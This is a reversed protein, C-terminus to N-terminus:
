RRKRKQKFLNRSRPLVKSVAGVVIAAGIVNGIASGYDTM